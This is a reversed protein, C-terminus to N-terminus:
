PLLFARYFKKGDVASEDFWLYPSRTLLLAAQPTWNTMDTSSQIQYTRGITGTIRLGPYTDLHLNAPLVPETSPNFTINRIRENGSDAVYIIGGSICAGTAGSFRAQNGPGNTYGVQGFSGAYTTTNTTPSLKRVSNGCALLLNGLGDPAISFIEYFRASSSPGDLDSYSPNIGVITTVDRNQNVRRILNNNSDWVYINDAADAGLAAPGYFSTFLGNGDIAGPNGSGVFVEVTGNTLLRYIKEASASSLYINHQSDLCIGSISISTNTLSVFGDAGIRTLYTSNAMWIVNSQDIAMVRSIFSVISVNTGYGPPSASGGGVFTTVTADPAIKRIRNNNLDAVFLNGSSDAVVGAPNNFMTQQGQGDLYGYFASGAFTQVVENNTDYLQARGSSCLLATLSWAIFLSIKMGSLSDGCIV